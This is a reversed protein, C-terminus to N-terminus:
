DQFSIAYSNETSRLAPYQQLRTSTTNVYFENDVPVGDADFERAYIGTPDNGGFGCWSVVFGGGTGFAVAPYTQSGLTTTNVLFEEGSKVGLGDFRQAYIGSGDGDQGESQWAILYGGTPNAAVAPYHQPGDTETNVAIEDGQKVAAADFRQAMIDWSSDNGLSAWAVVFEGDDLAAAAAQSQVGLNHRNIRFEAGQPTGDAAYLRGFIGTLDNVGRGEWIVVFEGANTEGTLHVVSPITQDGVFTANVQFEGGLKEGDSDLRQGFIGKGQGDQGDSEWVVVSTGDAAASVSAHNQDGLTTTNVQIEDGLPSGDADIQRAYVGWGSGDQGASGWVVIGGGDPLAAMPNGREAFSQNGLVSSIVLQETGLPALSLMQRMELPEFRLEKAALAKLRNKRSSSFAKRAKRKKGHPLLFNLM